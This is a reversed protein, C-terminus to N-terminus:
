QGVSRWASLWVEIGILFNSLQQFCGFIPGGNVRQAGPGVVAQKPQQRDRAQPQTLSQIESDRVDIPECANERNAPGLKSLGAQNRQMGRSPLDQGVICSAPIAAERRSGFSIEQHVL